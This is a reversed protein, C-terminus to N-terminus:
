DCGDLDIIHVRDADCLAGNLNSLMKPDDSLQNLFNWFGMHVVELNIQSNTASTALVDLEHLLAIQDMDDAGLEEMSARMMNKIDIYDGLAVQAADLQTGVCSLSPIDKTSTAQFIMAFANVIQFVAKYFRNLPKMESIIAASFQAERHTSFKSKEVNEQQVTLPDEPPDSVLAETDCSMLSCADDLEKDLKALLEDKETLEEDRQALQKDKQALAKLDSERLQASVAEAAQNEELLKAIITQQDEVQAQLREIKEAASADAQQKDAIEKLQRQYRETRQRSDESMTKHLAIQRQAQHLEVELAKFDGPLDDIEEQKKNLKKTLTENAAQLQKERDDLEKILERAAKLETMDGFHKLTEEPLTDELKLNKAKAAAILAAIQKQYEGRGAM